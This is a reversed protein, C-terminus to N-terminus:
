KRVLKVWRGPTKKRGAVLVKASLEGIAAGRSVAMTQANVVAALGKTGRILFAMLPSQIRCVGMSVVSMVVVLLRQRQRLM